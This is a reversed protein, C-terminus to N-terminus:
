TGGTYGDHTKQLAMLSLHRYTHAKTLKQLCQMAAISTNESALSSSDIGCALRRMRGTLLIMIQYYSGRNIM